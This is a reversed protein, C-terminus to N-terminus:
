AAIPEAPFTLRVTTGRGLESEATASGGHLDTISKVLALGLGAGQSSRSADGRYLRDFIRPLDSASIGSGNDSVTVEAAEDRIVLSVGIAGGDATFRLANDILNSIARAFLIPDAVVEGDGTCDITIRREEALTRYYAAIKELAARCDFRKREVQRDAAEARALFLLSDIMRSLRECEALTSEIVERYEEPARPRTLSVEAEGRINAVPTRLEHALDASFQSLRTFSDELRDLMADFALALPQLERPWGAPAVREQLHMPGVRQFARTMETLPRLGRRTVQTAILAAAAIGLALMAGLLTRFRKTFARDSSRDQAVQISYVQGDTAPQTAAVLAFSKGAIKQYTPSESAAAFSASPLLEDMGPTAAVLANAPGFVRVWYAAREGAHIAQLEEGLGGPGGAKKIHARLGFLKDALLRNDEELAHSLAIWYFAGLGCGLLVAAAATFLFVLQSAISRPEPSKSSM